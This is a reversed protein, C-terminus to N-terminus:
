RLERGLKHLWDVTEGLVVLVLLVSTRSDRSPYDGITESNCLSVCASTASTDLLVVFFFLLPHLFHPLPLFCFFLLCHDPCVLYFEPADPLCNRYSNLQFIYVNSTGTTNDIAKVKGMRDWLTSPFYTPSPLYAFNLPQVLVLVMVLIHCSSLWMFCLLWLLLATVKTLHVYVCGWRHHTRYIMSFIRAVLHGVVRVAPALYSEAAYANMGQLIRMRRKICIETCTKARVSLLKYM